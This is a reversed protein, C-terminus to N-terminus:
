DVKIPLPFFVSFRTETRSVSSAEITGGHAKVLEQVIALGLGSGKSSRAKDSKYLRQFINPLDEHSIGVGDDCISLIAHNRSKHVRIKIISGGSHTVANQLLNNVIRTYASTDLSVILDVDPILIEYALNNIEFQPIWDVVICRTLENIDLEAFQFQRESSDLRFWEFLMDLYEKLYLAKSRAVAIYEERERGTVVDNCIADLYGVLTTIPTKIDHSLSTMLRRNAQETKSAQILRKECNMVIRNIKYCLDASLDHNDVLIRRLLNGSEVDDLLLSAEKLKQKEDWIRISLYLIVLTQLLIVGCFTYVFSPNM